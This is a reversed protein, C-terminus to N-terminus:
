EPNYDYTTPRSAEIPNDPTYLNGGLSRIVACAANVGTQIAGEIWGGTFSQSDGALYVFPDTAPNKCGLFQYFLLQSQEDKGPANLKFAGYYHPELQWDIVQTYTAYDGDIPVVHRAFDANTRAVDQVLRQVRGRKDRLAMQQTSDDEWTYSLLVVGPARPDHPAYDLCYVGRVLTDTQINAPLDRQTLWFKDRTMVFVKSSSTMHVDTLASRQKAGLIGLDYGLDMDINMSRNTAAVVVRSFHEPRGHSLTLLPKKDPGRSIGTVVTGFRIRNGMRQGHFHKDCFARALSEIGGMVLQQDTELENVILRVLELFGIQYLPGFGGSGLGLAGFLDFDSPQWKQGGPPHASTFISVLGSYFSVNEFAHIYSKWAAVAIERHGAELAQTISAPSPLKQGNPLQCGHQVFQDWGNSVRAFIAPPTKSDAKWVYTRGQYGINTLVKGPDPFNPTHAIGLQDLYHFLGFESPPFRMAGLEALFEPHATTFPRSYARGGPRSGAEFITVDRAGARLLEYAAVLGGMGSGVVAIPEHELHAPLRGIADRAGRLFSGYDFLTDIYPFAQAAKPRQRLNGIHPM